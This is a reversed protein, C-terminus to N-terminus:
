FGQLHPAKQMKSRMANLLNRRKLVDKPTWLARFGGANLILQRRHARVTWALMM